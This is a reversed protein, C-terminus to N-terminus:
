PNAWEIVGLREGSEPDSVTVPEHDQLYGPGCPSKAEADEPLSVFILELPNVLNKVAKGAQYVKGATSHARKVTNLTKSIPKISCGTFVFVTLLATVTLGPKM